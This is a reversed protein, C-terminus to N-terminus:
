DAPNGNLTIFLKYSYSLELVQLYSIMRKDNKLYDSISLLWKSGIEFLSEKKIM